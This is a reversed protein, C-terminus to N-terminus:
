NYHCLIIFENKTKVMETYFNLGDIKLRIKIIKEDKEEKFKPIILSRVRPLKLKKKFFTGKFGDIDSPDVQLLGIPSKVDPKEKISFIAINPWFSSNEEWAVIDQVLRCALHRLPIGFRKTMKIFLKLSPNPSIERLLWYPVLINRGIEFALLEEEKWAESLPYLFGPVLPQIPNDDLNFFYTHGLEHSVLARKYNGSVKKSIVIDFHSKSPYLRATKVYDSHIVRAKRHDRIFPSDYDQITPIEIEGYIKLKQGIDRFLEQRNFSNVVM